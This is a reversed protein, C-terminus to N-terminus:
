IITVILANQEGRFTHWNAGACDSIASSYRISIIIEVKNSLCVVGNHTWHAFIQLSILEGIAVNHCRTRIAPRPSRLVDSGRGWQPRRCVVCSQTTTFVVHSAFNFHYIDNFIYAYFVRCNRLYIHAIRAIHIGHHAVIHSKNRIECRKEAIIGFVASCPDNNHALSTLM